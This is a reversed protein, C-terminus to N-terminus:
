AEAKKRREKKEKWKELLWAIPAGIALSFITIAAYVRAHIHFTEKFAIAYTPFKAHSNALLEAEKYAQLGFYASLCIIAALLLLGMIQAIKHM